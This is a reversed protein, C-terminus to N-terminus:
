WRRHAGPWLQATQERERGRSRPGLPVEFSRTWFTARPLSRGCTANSHLCWWGGRDWWVLIYGLFVGEREAAEGAGECVQIADNCSMEM